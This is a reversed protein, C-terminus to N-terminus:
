IEKYLFTKSISKRSLHLKSIIFHVCRLHGAWHVKVYMYTWAIVEWFMIYLMEPGGSLEKTGGVWYTGRWTVVRRVETVMSENQESKFKLYTSDGLVYGKTDPNKWEVISHPEDMNDHIDAAWKKWQVRNWPIYLSCNIWKGISLCHTQKWSKALIFLAIFIRTYM